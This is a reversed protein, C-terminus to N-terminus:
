LSDLVLGFVVGVPDCGAQDLVLLCQSKVCQQTRLFRVGDDSGQVLAGGPCGRLRVMGWRNTLGGFDPVILWWCSVSGRCVVVWCLVWLIIVWRLFGVRAPWWSADQM